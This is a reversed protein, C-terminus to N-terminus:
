RQDLMSEHTSSKQRKASDSLARWNGRFGANIEWLDGALEFSKQSTAGLNSM